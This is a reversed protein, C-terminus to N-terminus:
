NTAPVATGQGPPNTGAAKKLRRAERRRANYEDRHTEWYRKASEAVKDPNSEKYAKLKEINSHSRKAVREKLVTVERTLATNATSLAINEQRLREIEAADAM